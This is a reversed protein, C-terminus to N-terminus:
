PLIWRNLSERTETPLQVIKEGLQISDIFFSTLAVAGYQKIWYQGPVLGSKSLDKTQGGTTTRAKRKIFRLPAFRDAGM